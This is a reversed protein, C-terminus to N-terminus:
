ELYHSWSFPPLLLSPSSLPPLCGQPCLAPLALSNPPQNDPKGSCLRGEYRGAKAGPLPQAPGTPPATTSAEWTIPESCAGARNETQNSGVEGNGLSASQPESLPTTKGFSESRPLPPLSGSDSDVEHSLRGGPQHPDGLGPGSIRPLLVLALPTAGPSRCVTPPVAAARVRNLHCWPSKSSHPM